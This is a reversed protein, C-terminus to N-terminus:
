RRNFKLKVEQGQSNVVKLRLEKDTLKLIEWSENTPNFLLSQNVITYNSYKNYQYYNSEFSIKQKKDKFSYDSTTTIRHNKDSYVSLIAQYHKTKDGGVKTVYYKFELTADNLSYYLTENQGLPDYVFSMEHYTENQGDVYCEKLIWFNEIRESVRQFSYKGDEAYKKCSAFVLVLFTLSLIRINLNRYM